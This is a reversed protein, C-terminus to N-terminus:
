HPCVSLFAFPYFPETHTNPVLRLHNTAVAGEEAAGSCSPELSPPMTKDNRFGEFRQLRSMHGFCFSGCLCHHFCPPVSLHLSVFPYFLLCFRSFVRTRPSLSVHITVCSLSFCDTPYVLSLHRDQESRTGRTWIHTFIGFISIVAWLWFWIADSIHRIVLLIPIQRVAICLFSCWKHKELFCQWFPDSLLANETYKQTCDCRCILFMRTGLKFLVVYTSFSFFVSFSLVDQWASM